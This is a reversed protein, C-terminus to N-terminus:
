RDGDMADLQSCALAIRDGVDISETGEDYEVVDADDMMPLHVHGLAVAADEWKEQQLADADTDREARVVEATLADFAIPGGEERLYRVVNRRRNAALVGFIGDYTESGPPQERHAQDALEARGSLNKVM